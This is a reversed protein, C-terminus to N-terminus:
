FWIIEFKSEVHESLAWSGSIAEGTAMGVAGCEGGKWLSAGKKNSGNLVGFGGEQRNGIWMCQLCLGKDVRGDRVGRNWFITDSFGNDETLKSIDM